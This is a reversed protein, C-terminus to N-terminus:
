GRELPSDIAVVKGMPIRVPYGRVRRNKKRSGDTAPSV